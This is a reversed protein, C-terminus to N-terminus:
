PLAPLLRSSVGQNILFSSFREIGWSKARPLKVYSTSVTSRKKNICLINAPAEVREMKWISKRCIEDMKTVLRLVLKLSRQEQEALKM